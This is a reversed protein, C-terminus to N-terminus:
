QRVSETNLLSVNISMGSTTQIDFQEINRLFLLGCNSFDAAFDILIKEVEEITVARDKIASKKPQQVSRLPIRIITGDLPQGLDTLISSFGHM